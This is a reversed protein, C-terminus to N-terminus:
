SNGYNKGGLIILGLQEFKMTRTQTGLNSLLGENIM